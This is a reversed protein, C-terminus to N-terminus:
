IYWGLCSGWWYFSAISTYGRVTWNEPLELPVEFHRCINDHQGPIMVLTAMYWVVAPTADYVIFQAQSSGAGINAAGFHFSHLYATKGAPVTYITALINVTYRNGWAQIAGAPMQPYRGKVDQEVLLAEVPEVPRIGVWKSRDPESM